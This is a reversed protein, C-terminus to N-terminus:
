GVKDSMVVDFGEVEVGKDLEIIINWEAMDDTGMGPLLRNIVVDGNAEIREVEHRISGSGEELLVIVLFGDAFYEDTYKEMADVFGITTDSYVVPRSSFDYTEKYGGYYEDLEIRSSIVTIFPYKAGDVYGNTRIYQANFNIVGDVVTVDKADKRSTGFGEEVGRAFLPVNLVTGMYMLVKSCGSFVILTMCLCLSLIKVKRM